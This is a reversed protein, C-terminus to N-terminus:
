TLIKSIARQTRDGDHTLIPYSFVPDPRGCPVLWCRFGWLPYGPKEAARAKFRPDLRGPISIGPNRPPGPKLGPISAVRCLEMLHLIAERFNGPPRCGEM